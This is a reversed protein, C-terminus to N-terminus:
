RKGEGGGGGSGSGLIERISYVGAAAQTAATQECRRRGHLGVIRRPAPTIAPKEPDGEKAPGNRKAGLDVVEEDQAAGPAGGRGLREVEEGVPTRIRDVRTVEELREAAHDQDAGDAAQEAAPFRGGAPQQEHREAAEDHDPNEGGGHEPGHDHLHPFHVAATEGHGLGLHDGQNAPPEDPVRKADHGDGDAEDGGHAGVGAGRRCGIRGSGASGHGDPSIRPWFVEGREAEGREREEAHDAHNAPAFFAPM